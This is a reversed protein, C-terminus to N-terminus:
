YLEPIGSRGGESSEIGKKGKKERSEELWFPIQAGKLSSVTSLEIFVAGSM